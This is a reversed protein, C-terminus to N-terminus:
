RLARVYGVLARAEHLRREWTIGMGILLAGAAGILVWRPVAETLPTSHRLVLLLGVTAGYVVPATWRIRVGGVVLALCALGVLVSRLAIPDWVVWLLSPVLGLGLAPSLATMTSTGHHRRLMVLGVVALALASPLTYAEPTEVGIDWLRVWSAVALLSAGLWGALRRDPRLLALTSVGAGTLTLYVAAWTAARDTPVTELGALALAFAAALAGLETGGRALHRSRPGPVPDPSAAAHDLRDAYPLGLSLIAVALIGAAATWSGASDTLAGVTWVALGTFGALLVGGAAAAGTSTWGLYLVGAVGLGVGAAPLTLGEAHLGVVVGLTLFGAGAALSLWSRTRTAWGSFGVAGLLGLALVLWVPAPYLAVTGVVTAAALAAGLVPRFLRGAVRDVEPLARALVLLAGVLAAGTVPLLWSALGAAGVLRPDLGAGAAGTWPAALGTTLMRDLAEAGLTLVVGGMWAAGLALPVCAARSWPAPPFWAAAASLLVAGVGAATALTLREDTFAALLAAVLVTEAVALSAVRAPRPLRRLLAPAGALLAAALLPWAELELWLERGNAHTLARAWATGLLGVWVVSTVAAAGVALAVLRLAHAGLAVAAALAVSLTLSPSGALWDTQVGGVAATGLGLAAVVEAGTLAPVATRRVALSAAAGAGLLVCGLIVLFSPVGIEGFWGSDRAGVLDFALLGLAVVSLSEAAARLGRGALWAALGGAVVTFGVLTATRGAVGMVPWTVALFVLAAVLLCVAGLGLLIQPVTAASLGHRVREGPRAVTAPRQGTPPPVPGAPQPVASTAALSPAARLQQLITDAESLAAFLRAALPGTLSLNCQPCRDAGYQMPGLCDPCRQPDAYRNM